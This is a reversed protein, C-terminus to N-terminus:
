ADRAWSYEAPKRRPLSRGQPPRSPQQPRRRTAGSGAVPSCRPWRTQLWRVTTAVAAGYTSVAAAHALREGIRWLATRAAATTVGVSVANQVPAVCALPARNETPGCVAEPPRRRMVLRQQPGARTADTHQGVGRGAGRTANGAVSRRGNDRWPLRQGWRPGPCQSM